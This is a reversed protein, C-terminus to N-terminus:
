QLTILGFKMETVSLAPGSQGISSINIPFVNSVKRSRKAGHPNRLLILEVLDGGLFVTGTALVSYAHGAVIGSHIAQFPVIINRKHIVQETKGDTPATSISASTL